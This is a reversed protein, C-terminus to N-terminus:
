SLPSGFAPLAAGRAALGDSRRPCTSKAPLSSSAPVPPPFSLVAVPDRCESGSPGATTVFFGEPLSCRLLASGPALMRTLRHLSWPLPATSASPARPFLPPRRHSGPLLFLGGAEGRPPPACPPAPPQSPGPGDLPFAQPCPFWPSATRVDLPSRLGWDQPSVNVGRVRPPAQPPCRTEPSLYLLNQLDPRRAPGRAPEDSPLTLFGRAPFPVTAEELSSPAGKGRGQKPM